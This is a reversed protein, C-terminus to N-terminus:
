KSNRPDSEQLKKSLGIEHKTLVWTPRACSRKMTFYMPLPRTTFRSPAKNLPISAQAPCSQLSTRFSLTGHDSCGRFRAAAAVQPRPRQSSGAIKPSVGPFINRRGGGGGGMEPGFANKLPPPHPHINQAGM